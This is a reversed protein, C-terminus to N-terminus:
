LTSPPVSSRGLQCFPAPHSQLLWSEGSYNIHANKHNQSGVRKMEMTNNAPKPKHLSRSQQKWHCPVKGGLRQGSGFEGGMDAQAGAWDSTPWRLCYILKDLTKYSLTGLSCHSWFSRLISAITWWFHQTPLQSCCVPFFCAWCWSRTKTVERFSWPSHRLFQLQLNLKSQNVKRLNNIDMLCTLTFKSASTHGYFYFFLQKLSYHTKGATQTLFPDMYIDPTRVSVSKRM